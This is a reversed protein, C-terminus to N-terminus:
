QVAGRGSQDTSSNPRHAKGTEQCCATSLSPQQRPAEWPSLAQHANSFSM